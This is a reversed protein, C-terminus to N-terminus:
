YFAIWKLSECIHRSMDDSNDSCYNRQNRQYYAVLKYAFCANSFNDLNIKQSVNEGGYTDKILPVM